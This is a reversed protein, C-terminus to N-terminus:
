LVLNYLAQFVYFGTLVIFENTAVSSCVPRNPIYLNVAIFYLQIPFGDNVDNSMVDGFLLLCFSFEVSQGAYKHNRVIAILRQNSSLIFPFQQLFDATNNNFGATVPHGPNSIRHM